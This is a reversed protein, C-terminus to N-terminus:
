KNLEKSQIDEKKEKSQKTISRYRMAVIGWSIIYTVFLLPITIDVGYKKEVWKGVFVGLVAPISFYALIELGLIFIKTTQKQRDHM